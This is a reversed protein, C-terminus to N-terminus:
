GLKNKNLSKSYKLYLDSARNGLVTKYNANKVSNVQKAIRAKKLLSAVDNRVSMREDLDKKTFKNMNNLPELKQLKKHVGGASSVLAAANSFRKIYDKGYEYKNKITNITNSLFGEELMSNLLEASIIEDEILSMLDYQNLEGELFLNFALDTNEIIKEM